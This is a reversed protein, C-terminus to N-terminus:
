YRVKGARGIQGLGNRWRHALVVARGIIKEFSSSLPNAFLFVTALASFILIPSHDSSTDWFLNTSQLRNKIDAVISVRRQIYADVKELNQASLWHYYANRM